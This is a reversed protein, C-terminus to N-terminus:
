VDKYTSVGKVDDFTVHVDEPMVEYGDQKMISLGPVGTGLGFIYYNLSYMM